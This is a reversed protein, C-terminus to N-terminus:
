RRRLRRRRQQQQKISALSLSLCRLLLLFIVGPCPSSSPALMQIRCEDGKTILPVSVCRCCCCCSGLTMVLLQALGHVSHLSPVRHVRHSPILMFWCVPLALQDPSLSLFFPRERRKTCIIFLRLEKNRVALSSSLLSSVLCLSDM